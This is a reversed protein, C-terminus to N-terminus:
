NEERDRQLAAGEAVLNGAAVGAVAEGDGGGLQALADEGQRLREVESLLLLEQQRDVRHVLPPPEAGAGDGDPHCVCVVVRRPELYHPPFVCM